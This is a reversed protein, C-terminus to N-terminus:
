NQGSPDPYRTIIAKLQEQRYPFVENSDSFDNQFDHDGFRRRAEEYYPIQVRRVFDVFENMDLVRGEPTGPDPEQVPGRSLKTLLYTLGDVGLFDTLAASSSFNKNDCIKQHIIKFDHAKHFGDVGGPTSQWIVYGRQNPEIPKHCVDCYWRTLPKDM